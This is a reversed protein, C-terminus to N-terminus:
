GDANKAFAMLREKIRDRATRFAQRAAEETEGISVPDPIPWHLRQAKQSPVVPCIEEACLTIVYDLAALFAPPLADISKPRHASLDIGVEKMVEIADPQVKEGPQSGASRIEARVRFIEKALGEAMQSRASNGVCLFLIKM